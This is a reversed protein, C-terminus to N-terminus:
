AVSCMCHRKSRSVSSTRLDAGQFCWGFVSFQNQCKPLRRSGEDTFSQCKCACMYLYLLATLRHHPWTLYVIVPLSSFPPFLFLTTFFDILAAYLGPLTGRDTNLPAQQHQIHWSELMCRTQTGWDSHGQVSGGPPRVLARTRCTCLSCHRWRGMQGIYTCPCEVTNWWRKYKGGNEESGTITYRVHGCQRRVARNHKYM